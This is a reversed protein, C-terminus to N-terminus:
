FAKRRFMKKARQKIQPKPIRSEQRPKKAKGTLAKTPTPEEKAREVKKVKKVKKGPKIEELSLTIHSTRKFISFIRGGGRFRFRKLTPGEGVIIESIYLNSRNKQFDNEATAMASHLLKKVPKVAKKRTFELITDAEQVTKGRILDAVLRAKRASIRLHKLHVTIAM